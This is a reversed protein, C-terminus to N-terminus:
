YQLLWYLDQLVFFLHSKCMKVTILPIQSVGDKDGIDVGFKQIQSDVQLVQLKCLILFSISSNVLFLQLQSTPPQLQCYIGTFGCSVCSARSFGRRGKEEEKSLFNSYQQQPIPNKKDLLIDGQFCLHGSIIGWPTPM